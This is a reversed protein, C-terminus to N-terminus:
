LTLSQIMLCNYERTESSTGPILKFICQVLYSEKEDSESAGNKLLTRVSHVESVVCNVRSHPRSLSKLVMEM